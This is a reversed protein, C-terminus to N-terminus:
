GNDKEKHLANWRERVDERRIPSSVYFGCARCEVVYFYCHTPFYERHSTEEIHCSGCQPCVKILKSNTM